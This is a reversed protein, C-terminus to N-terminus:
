TVVDVGNRLEEAGASAALRVRQCWEEADDGVVDCSVLGAAPHAHGSFDDGGHGIDPVRLQRVGVTRVGAVGEGIWLASMPIRGAM